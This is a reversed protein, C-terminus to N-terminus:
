HERKAWLKVASVALIAALVLKLADTQVWAAAYGGIMAGAISGISMPLVLHALMSQSRYHGNLWHRLVGAVVVPISIL